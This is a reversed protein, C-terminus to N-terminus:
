KGPKRRIADELAGSRRHFNSEALKLLREQAELLVRVEEESLEGAKFAMLRHNFRQGLTKSIRNWQEFIKSIAEKDESGNKSLEPTNSAQKTPKSAQKAHINKSTSSKSDELVRKYSDDGRPAEGRLFLMPGGRRMIIDIVQDEWLRHLEVKMDLGPFESMFRTSFGNFVSHIGLHNKGPNRRTVIESLVFERVSLKKKSV